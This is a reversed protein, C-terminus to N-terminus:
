ATLSCFVSWYRSVHMKDQRSRLAEESLRNGWNKPLAHSLIKFKRWKLSRSYVLSALLGQDQTGGMTNLTHLSSAGAGTTRGYHDTHPSLYTRIRYGGTIRLTHPGVERTIIWGFYFCYMSSIHNNKGKFIKFSLTPSHCSTSKKRWPVFSVSHIIM